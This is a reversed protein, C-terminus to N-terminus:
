HYGLTDLDKVITKVMKECSPLDVGPIWHAFITKTVGDHMVLVLVTGM